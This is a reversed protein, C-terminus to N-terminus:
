ECLQIAFDAHFPDISTEAEHQSLVVVSEEPIDARDRAEEESQSGIQM